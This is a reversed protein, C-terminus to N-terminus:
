CFYLAFGLLNIYLFPGGFFDFSQQEHTVEFAGAFTSIMGPLSFIMAIMTMFFHDLLMSGLRTGVSIQKSIITMINVSLPDCDGSGIHDGCIQM